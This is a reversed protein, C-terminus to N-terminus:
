RESSAPSQPSQLSQPSQPSKSSPLRRYSMSSDTPPCLVSFLSHLRHGTVFEEWSQPVAPGERALERESCRERGDGM